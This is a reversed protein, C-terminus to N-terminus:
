VSREAREVLRSLEVRSRVGLTAFVNRLHHDVTRVSVSLRRAVERNTSGEAVYLAIRLQQPTLGALAGPPEQAPAAGTARLEAAAQAAWVPAGCREFAVLADRLPPRARAPRRDRRLWKGYLLLTRAREFDGGASRHAALAQEYWAETRAPPGEGAAALLARCRALQAPAQPDAGFATWRAFEEVPHLAAGPSGTLTAAEVFCPVALMRVGFHGQRPGSCVQPALRAAAEAVRGRALEARALAWQSLTAAQALGHRGAIAEAIEAHARVTAADADLSAVLALVAHQHALVNRQGTREAAAVGDQGHARARSHRGARLEAYALLELARPLLLDLGLARALALARGTVRCAAPLDGLVLAAAGARLLSEPEDDATPRPPGGEPEHDGRTRLGSESAEGEGGAGPFAGGAGPFEGSAGAVVRRLAARGSDFGHAGGRLVACMGSRYDALEGPEPGAPCADPDAGGPRAGTDAACNAHDPCVAERYASADGMAWAAEGADLRAKFAEDPQQRALLRAALLLSERADAVPGDGLAVLGQVRCARGRTVRDAALTRVQALLAQAHEPRGAARAQEAAEVLLAARGGPGAALTAARELALARAAPTLPAGEARVADALAASLEADPGDCALARHSLRDLREGEAELVRALLQHAERRCAYTAGMYVATRPLRADFRIGGASGHVLGASEARELAQAPVGLARAARLVPGTPAGEAAPDAEQAAAALLLVVRAGSPLAAM